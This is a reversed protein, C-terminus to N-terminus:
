LLAIGSARQVRQTITSALVAENDYILSFTTKARTIGTYLLERTLVPSSSAPLLLATHQFESGQSKHVTMAFVTEASHLRSPLVWRIGGEGDLFAVRLVTEGQEQVPLCVGIDGNMLQVQYDNRTMLVPRGPYWALGEPRILGHRALLREIRANLGQVGWDGERVAGLLQFNRQLALIQLATQNRQATEAEPAFAAVATLYPRYGTLLLAKLADSFPMATSASTGTSVASMSQQLLQVPSNPEAAIAKITTVASCADGAGELENGDVRAGDDTTGGRNVLTALRHIAGGETFRYSHRLMATVQALAPADEAAVYREPIAAACLQQLYAVTGPRYSGAEAFRCLDGLVSGAEVSALQDKDGLLYLRCDAPLAQVLAAMLEVDVMSAEDVVVVDAALPNQRQHKFHRSDPRAGLLRHLTQVRTPLWAKLQGPDPLPLASVDLQQLSQAISENLRAAAKGTPAALLIQLPKQQGTLQLGQLLALLKLVTTTKGTGPGGTIIAFRSRLALACAAMQWDFPAARKHAPFLGQLLPAVRDVALPAEPQLRRTIEAAILQEYQWYRRMYLLPKQASGALVFPANARTHAQQGPLQSAVLASGQLAQLWDQGSHASLYQKLEADAQQWLESRGAPAKVKSQLLVAGIDLCVHGRGHAESCLLVALLELETLEPLQRSFFQALMWDLSRILGAQCWDEAQQLLTPLTPTLSQASM